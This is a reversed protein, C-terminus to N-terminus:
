RLEDPIHFWQVISNRDTFNAQFAHLSKDNIQFAFLRNNIPAVKKLLTQKDKYIGTEGGDGEKWGDNDLFFILSIIRRRPIGTEKKPEDFPTVGNSLRHIPSFYKLVFDSHVFGTRNGSPHHHMGTSTEMTTLQGFLKSFFRNWAITFLFSFPAKPDITPTPSFLYGDYDIEFPRFKGKENIDKSLGMAKCRRFEACMKQYQLPTFFDDIIVHPFPEQILTIDKRQAKIVHELAIDERSLLMMKQCRVSLRALSRQFM